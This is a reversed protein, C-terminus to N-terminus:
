VHARGIKVDVITKLDEETVKDADINNASFLKMLNKTILGLLIVFPKLIISFFYIPKSFKLAVDESKAQAIMKPTIEGFILVVITLIIPSIVAGKTGFVDTFFLTAITTTVINVINNGVLITTILNQIDNILRKLLSANKVENKELQRVKFSSTSTIATEASSFFASM